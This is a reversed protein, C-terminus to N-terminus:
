SCLAMNHALDAAELLMVTQLEAPVKNDLAEVGAWLDALAFAEVVVTYARAIAAETFGGEQSIQSVFTAGVRNVMGNSVATAVIERRLRHAKIAADYTKRIPTPFYDRLVGALFPQDPLDSDLLAEYLTNKAYAMVVSIEPRSLGAVAAAREAIEEDDPLFELERDLRNDRELERMFRAQPELLAPARHAMATVTQTQLYNDRLVLDSVEDTMSALVKDRRAMTLGGKAMIQGFLIKINVEHDSCDVGASNDVADTNIRGGAEAFEIRGRQTFGLNGGEGVVKCRLDAGNLRLPDNARDGVEADREDSAKVYTGIGGVWLLDVEAGLMARILDNPAMAAATIGFAQKMQTSIAISQASRAFVGGGKSILNADYDTWASRPKRFLRKREILSKAPDGPNPDVFIHIHNFAALLKIHKSLMMGNGFVDGAMDGIGVVTFDQRQTDLGIERFHRKVSEWAGKATIGMKKHDYGVSGGSAFADDLWFGYDRSMGNAIDSFTATGKDAAVVLYTDDGDHRIVDAPPKASKTGQNDTVDLLGRMLLQYCAIGEALFAERDGTTPPRKVVFGGKAGVPVIM